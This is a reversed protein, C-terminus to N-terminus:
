EDAKSAASIERKIEAFRDKGVAHTMIAFEGGCGCIPFARNLYKAGIDVRYGCLVCALKHKKGNPGRFRAAEKEFAQKFIHVLKAPSFKRRRTKAWATFKALDDPDLYRGKRAAKRGEIEAIEVVKAM